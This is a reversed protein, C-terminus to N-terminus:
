KLKMDGCMYDFLDIWGSKIDQDKKKNWLPRKINYRNLFVFNLLTFSYSIDQKKPKVKSCYSAM